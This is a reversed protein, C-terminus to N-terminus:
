YTPAGAEEDGGKHGRATKELGDAGQRIDRSLGIMTNCSSLSLVVLLAFTFTKM